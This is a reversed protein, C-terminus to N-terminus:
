TPCPDIEGNINNSYLLLNVPDQMRRLDSFTPHRDSVPVDSLNTYRSTKGVM